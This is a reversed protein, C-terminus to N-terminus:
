KIIERLSSFSRYKFILCIEEHKDYFEVNSFYKKSQVDVQIYM